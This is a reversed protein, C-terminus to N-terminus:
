SAKQKRFLQWGQTGSSKLVITQDANQLTIYYNSSEDASIEFLDTIWYEQYNKKLDALLGIPLQGSVLNRTVAVLDGAEHYYAFMVQGNLRFTAKLVSKSIDWSVDSAGAFEKNFSRLVNENVEEGNHAFSSLAVMMTLVGMLIFKKM